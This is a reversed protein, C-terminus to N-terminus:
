ILICPVYLFENVTKESCHGILAFLKKMRRYWMQINKLERQLDPPLRNSTKRDKKGLLEDLASEDLDCEEYNQLTVRHPNPDNTSTQKDFRSPKIPLQTQTNRKCASKIIPRENTDTDLDNDGLNLNDEDLNDHHDEFDSAEDESSTDSPPQNAAVSLNKRLLRKSARSPPQTKSAQNSSKPMTRKRSARPPM